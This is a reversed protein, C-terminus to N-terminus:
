PASRRSSARTRSWPRARSPPRALLITLALERDGTVRQLVGVSGSDFGGGGVFGCKRSAPLRIQGETRSARFAPGAAALGDCLGPARTWLYVCMANPKDDDDANRNYTGWGWSWVSAIRYEAVVQRAALAQWKVVEVM